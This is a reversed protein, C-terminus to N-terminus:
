AHVVGLPLEESPREPARGGELERPRAPSRALERLRRREGRPRMAEFALLVAGGYVLHAAIAYAHNALPYARPGASLRFAPLILDDSAAWVFVGYGAAGAPTALAPASSAALGYLAGWGAGFAYHVLQGAREKSIPLERQMLGEAFRRAVTQTPQEDRQEPEPPEFSAAESSPALGKTARFFVNQAASGLAGAVLGRVLAGLPTIHTTM